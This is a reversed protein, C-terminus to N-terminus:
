SFIMTQQRIKSSANGDHKTFLFQWYKKNPNARLHHRPFFLARSGNRSIIRHNSFRQAAQSRLSKHTYEPRDFVAIDINHMFNQWYNWHHLNQLNDAGMLWIFQPTPRKIMLRDVLQYTKVTKLPTEIDLVFIKPHQAFDQAQKLRQAIPPLHSNEKIPNGPTVLWWIQHLKLRKIAQMAVNLHGAHPPNFSGGYLGIRMNSNTHPTKLM